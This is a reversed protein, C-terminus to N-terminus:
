KNKNKRISIANNYAADRQDKTTKKRSNYKPNGLTGGVGKMRGLTHYYRSEEIDNQFDRKEPLKTGEIGARTYAKRGEIQAKTLPKNQDYRSSRRRGM